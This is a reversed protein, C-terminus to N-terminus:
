QMDPCVVSSENHYEKLCLQHFSHCILRCDSGSEGCIYCNDNNDDKTLRDVLKPRIISVTGDRNDIVSEPSHRIFYTVYRNSKDNGLDLTLLEVNTLDLPLSHRFGAGFRLNTIGSLWPRCPSQLGDGTADVPQDFDHGFMLCKVGKLDLENIPQNFKYGFTLSTVKKLDLRHVPQNFWYGFTLCKVNKLDLGDIPQNFGLGFRLSTVNKLDWPQLGNISQNFWYDLSLDDVEKLDLETIPHRLDGLRLRKVGKLDLEELPQEYLSSLTLDTVGKLDLGTISQNFSHGFMLHKVNKLDMGTVPQNFRYGFKLHTVNKLDLGARVGNTGVAIAASTIPQNFFFGFTLSTVEKLDLKDIPQNFAGGFTLSTVGKLDLGSISQNFNEGFTLCRINKLDLGNISRNFLHGFELKTADKLKWGSYTGKGHTDTVAVSQNYDRDNLTLSTICEELDLNDYRGIVLFKSSASQVGIGSMKLLIIEWNNKTTGTTGTTQQPAQLASVQAGIIHPIDFKRPIQRVDNLEDGNQRADM